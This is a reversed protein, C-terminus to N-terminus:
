SLISVKDRELQSKLESLSDFRQETRIFRDLTVRVNRGYLDGDFGIIHTEMNEANDSKVTPKVGINTIAPYKRGDLTVSGAYVGRKPHIMYAPLEQNVTPFGITRGLQKGHLVPLTYFLGHGLLRAAGPIDGGRILGRIRTSSVPEGDACVPPVIDCGIGHKECLAALTRADGSGDRGFRFDTGCCVFAAAIDRKLIDTVFREPSLGRVEEFPLACIDDAGASRLLECRDEFSTLLVGSEGGYKPLAPVGSFTFVTFSGHGAACDLVARHGAHVGDFFGLAASRGTM